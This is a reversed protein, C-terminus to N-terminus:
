QTILNYENIEEDTMYYIDNPGASNITFYYFEKAQENSFGCFIYFNIYPQHEEHGLSYDTASSNGSSWSHVGIKSGPDRTRINGSLFLDVAGSEVIANSPLHTNIGNNRLIKAADMMAEDNKSGPCEGFHLLKINPYDEMLNNLQKEIRNGMDGNMIATTDNQISFPGYKFSTGDKKCALNVVLISHILILNFLTKL